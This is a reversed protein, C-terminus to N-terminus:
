PRQEKETTGPRVCRDLSQEGELVPSIGSNGLLPLFSPRCARCELYRRGCGRCDAKKAFFHNAIKAVTPREGGQRHDPKEISRVIALGAPPPIAGCRLSRKQSRTQDGAAPYFDRKCFFYEGCAITFPVAVPGGVKLVIIDGVTRHTAYVIGKASVALMRLNILDRALVDVKFGAPAKILGTLKADDPVM